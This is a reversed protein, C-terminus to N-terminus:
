SKISIKAVNLKSGEQLQKMRNQIAGQRLDWSPTDGYGEFLSNIAWEYRPFKNRFQWECWAIDTVPNGLHAVEWDLIALLETGEKNLICNYHAFDGHVIVTGEGPLIDAVVEMPTSHLRRLFKGMEKLLTTAMGAEVAMNGTLGDIYKLHLNGPRSGTAIRAVPFDSLRTLLILERYYNALKENYNKVVAAGDWVINNGSTNPKRNKGEPPIEFTTMIIGEITLGEVHVGLSVTSFVKAQFFSV